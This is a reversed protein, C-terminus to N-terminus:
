SSNLAFFAPECRPSLVETPVPILHWEASSAELLRTDLRELSNLMQKNEYGCVVYIHHGLACSSHKNRGLNMPAVLEWREEEL